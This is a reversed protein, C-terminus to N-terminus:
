IGVFDWLKQELEAVQAELGSTNPLKVDSSIQSILEGSPTRRLAGRLVGGAVPLTEAYVVSADVREKFLRPFNVPAEDVTKIRTPRSGDVWTITMIHRESDWEGTAVEHWPRQQAIEGAPTVIAFVQSSVVAWTDDVLLEEALSKGQAARRVSRPAKIRAM